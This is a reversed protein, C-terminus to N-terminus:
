KRLGGRRTEVTARVRVRDPTRGLQAGLALSGLVLVAGLLVGDAPLHPVISAHAEAPAAFLALFAAYKM